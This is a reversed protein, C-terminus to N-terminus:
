RLLGAQSASPSTGEIGSRTPGLLTLSQLDADSGWFGRLFTLPPAGSQMTMKVRLNSAIQNTCLWSFLDEGLHKADIHIEELVFQPGLTQIQTITNVVTTGNQKM